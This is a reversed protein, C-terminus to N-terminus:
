FPLQAVQVPTARRWAAEPAVDLHHRYLAGLRMGGIGRGSVLQLVNYGPNWNGEILVPGDASLGIDWGILAHDAFHGHARVALNRAADFLDLRAGAIPAGTQPHRELEAFGGGIRRLAPGLVADSGVPAVLNDMNFNDAARDSALSLRLATDVVEFAGHENRVTVIRLTPLAGPSLDALDSHVVICQQVVWGDHRRRAIWPDLDGAAVNLSGDSARWDGGAQRVLRVVGKGKSGMGPKVILADHAAADRADAIVAPLALGGARCRAEFLAKNKLPNSHLPLAAHNVIAHIGKREDQDLFDALPADDRRRQHIERLNGSRFGLTRAQRALADRGTAHDRRHLLDAIARAGMGWGDWLRGYYSARLGDDRAAATRFIPPMPRLILALRRLALGRGTLAAEETQGQM